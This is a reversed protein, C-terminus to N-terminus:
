SGSQVYADVLATLTSNIGLSKIKEADERQLSHDRDHQFLIITHKGATAREHSNAKRIAEPTGTGLRNLFRRSEHLEDMERRYDDYPLTTYINEEKITCEKCEVHAFAAEPNGFRHITM